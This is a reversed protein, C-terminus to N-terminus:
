HYTDIYQNPPSLTLKSSLLLRHIIFLQNDFRKKFSIVFQLIVECDRLVLVRM